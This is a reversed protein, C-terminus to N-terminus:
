IDDPIEAIHSAAKVERDFGTQDVLYPSFTIPNVTKGYVITAGSGKDNIASAFDTWAIRKETRWWFRQTIGASNIVVRGPLLMLIALPLAVLAILLIPVIYRADDHTHSSTILLTFFLFGCGAVIFVVAAKLPWCLPFRIEPGDRIPYQQRASTQLARRVLQDITTVDREGLSLRRTLQLRTRCSGARM